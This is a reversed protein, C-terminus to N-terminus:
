SHSESLAINDTNGDSIPSLGLQSAMTDMWNDVGAHVVSSACEVVCDGQALTSDDVVELKDTDILLERIALADLPHLRVQRMQEQSGPLQELGLHVLRGLAEVDVKIERKLLVRAIELSLATVEQEIESDSTAPRAQELAAIVGNLRVVAQQHLAANGEAYGRAHGEELGRTYGEDYSSQLMDASPNSLSINATSAADPNPAEAATNVSSAAIPFSAQLEPASTHTKPASKTLQPRIQRKPLNQNAPQAVSSVVQRTDAVQRNGKGLEPAQWRIAKRAEDESLVRFM